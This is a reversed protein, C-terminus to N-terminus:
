GKFGLTRSYAQAERKQRKTQPRQRRFQRPVAQPRQRRKEVLRAFFRDVQAQSILYNQADRMFFELRVGQVGRIWRFVTRLSVGQEAALEQTTYVKM